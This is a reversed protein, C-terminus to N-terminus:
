FKVFSSAGMNRDIGGTVAADFDHSLLGRVAADVAAMASGCAAATIFNPGRFDFLNAVRGALINGLEGPMTDETIPPFRVGIEQGFEEVLGRRGDGPPRVLSRGKGRGGG